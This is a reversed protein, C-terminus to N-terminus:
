ESRRLLYGILLGRRGHIREPGELSLREALNRMEAFSVREAFALVAVPHGPEIREPTLRYTQGSLFSTWDNAQPNKLQESVLIFNLTKLSHQSNPILFLRYDGILERATEAFAREKEWLGADKDSTFFVNADHAGLLLVGALIVAGIATRAPREFIESSKKLMQSIPLAALCSIFPWAMMTRRTMVAPRSLLNPLLFVAVFFLLLLYNTRRIQSLSYGIGILVLVSVAPNFYLNGRPWPDYNFSRDIFFARVLREINDQVLPIGRIYDAERTWHHDMTRHWVSEYAEFHPAIMDWAPINLAISVASVTLIFITLGPLNRVFFGRITLSCALFVFGCVLLPFRVPSYFYGAFAATFGLLLFAWTRHQFAGKLFFYILAMGVTLTACLLLGTRSYNIHMPSVALIFASLLAPRKGFLINVIGYTLAVALTGYLAPLLKLTQIDVGLFRFLWSLQWGYVPSLSLHGLGRWRTFLWLHGTVAEGRLMRLALLGYDAEDSDFRYSVEGLRYIRLAFATLIILFLLISATEAPFPKEPPILRRSSFFGAALSYLAAGVLLITAATLEGTELLLGGWLGMGGAFLLLLIPISWSRKLILLLVASVVIFGAGAAQIVQPHRPVLVALNGGLAVAPEVVRSLIQNLQQRFAGTIAFSGIAILAFATLLLVANLRALRYKRSSFFGKAALGGIVLVAGSILLAFRASPTLFGPM